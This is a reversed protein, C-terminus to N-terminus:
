AANSLLGGSLTPTGALVSRLFAGDLAEELDGQFDFTWLACDLARAFDESLSDFSGMLETLSATDDSPAHRTFGSAVM